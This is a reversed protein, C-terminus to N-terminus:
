DCERFSLLTRLSATMSSIKANKKEMMERAYLVCM